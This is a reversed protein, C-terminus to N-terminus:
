PKLRRSSPQASHTVQVLRSSTHGKPTGWEGKSSTASDNSEGCCTKWPPARTKATPPASYGPPLPSWFRRAKKLMTDLVDAWLVGEVGPSAAIKVALKHRAHTRIPCISHTLFQLLAPYNLPAWLLELVLPLVQLAPRLASASDLGQRARNAGVMHADLCNGEQGSVLLLSEVDKFSRSLWSAALSRSQAQVVHVTGDDQWILPEVQEGAVSRQLQAQLQGLFGKARGAPRDVVAHPLCQLAGQWARPYTQWDDMLLIKEIPPRRTQLASTIRRLREGVSPAVCHQARQEVDALDSIRASAHPSTNGDWGHLYLDDRWALLEAAV